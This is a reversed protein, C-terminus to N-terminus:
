SQAHQRPAPAASTVTIGRRRPYGRALAKELRADHGYIDQFFKVEGDPLVVATAYIIVVPRKQPLNVQQSDTGNNMAEVIKDKTWNKNGQLIWEALVAPDEVRICGHSFDRRTRSFLEQAPTSHLYVNHENPFVFKALGLSNKPGPRQRISLAGSNLKALQEDSVASTTVINGHQDVVELQNQPLYGPDKKIKPVIEDRQISLPVNWYPRFVLYSMEQSFVPTHARYSRGVVVRMTLEVTEGPGFGRLIFEPINVLIPPPNYVRPAWRWRELTFQLQRVRTSLPTNLQDLTDKGIRGDPELGHREQFHKMADVIAGKYLTSDPAVAADPPLDGVLKLLRVLRPVGPYTDGPDITKKKAPPPLQEGDDQSAMQMYKHLADETRRYLVYPPELQALAAPVHSSSIIQDRLYRPLDFKSRADDDGLRVRQPKVRGFQVESIYRMMSVTLALDFRAQVDESAPHGGASLAAIRDKWRPGDYDEPSLGVQDAQELVTIAVLAQSTPHGDAIWALSYNAAEYFSKADDRHGSFDPWRLDALTGAEVFARLAQQESTAAQPGSPSAAAAVATALMCFVVYLLSAENARRVFVPINM